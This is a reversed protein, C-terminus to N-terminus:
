TVLVLDAARQLPERDDLRERERAELALRGELQLVEATHREIPEHTLGHRDRGEQRQRRLHRADDGVDVPAADDVLIQLRM